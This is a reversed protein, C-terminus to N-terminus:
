IIIIELNAFIMLISGFYVSLVEIFNNPVALISSDNDLADM